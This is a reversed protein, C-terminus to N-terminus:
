ITEGLLFDTLSLHKIGNEDYMSSILTNREIIIKQFGDGTNLLPRSEQKIKEESPLAYASQIYIKENGKTAVFDIECNNRVTKNNEKHFLEVVGVDVVYGRHILENYIINEMLHTEEIQRFNLRANRLGTDVLYYKITSDIYKRGKINYQIAKNVLMSDLIHDIYRQVQEHSVNGKKISNLTNKLKNVSTLSGVSSSIINIIDMLIDERDLKYRNVIDKIYTETFLQELYHMKDKKDELSLVKPMGGFLMYDNLAKNVDGKVHEYYEKFSLPMVLIQDDRGRFETLIDKSLMKSNSGTIYIDCNEHMLDNLVDFLTIKPIDKTQLGSDKFAPNPVPIVFQVEDLLIYYRKDDQMSERLFAGLNVPNRFYSNQERDLELRIIHSEDIGQSKLYDYFINFLIFSKGCRRVGTIVKVLGNGIKSILRNLYYDRKIYM